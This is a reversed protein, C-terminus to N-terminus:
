WLAWKIDYLRKYESDNLCMDSSCNRVRRNAQNKLWKRSVYCRKLRPTIQETGIRKSVMHTHAPIVVNDLIKKVSPITRYKQKKNDWYTQEIPETHYTTYTYEPVERPIREFIFRTDVVRYGALYNYNKTSGMRKQKIHETAKRRNQARLKAKEHLYDTHSYEDNEKFIKIKAM